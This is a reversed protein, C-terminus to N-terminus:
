GKRSSSPKDPRWDLRNLSLAEDAALFLTTPDPGSIFATRPGNKDKLCLKWLYGELFLLITGTQRQSGDPWTSCMLFESLTPFSELWSGAVTLASASSGSSGNESPKHLPLRKVRERPVESFGFHGRHTKRGKAGEYCLLCNIFGMKVMMTHKM